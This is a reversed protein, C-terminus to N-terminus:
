FPSSSDDGSSKSGGICCLAGEIFVSGNDAVLWGHETEGANCKPAPGTGYAVRGGIAACDKETCGGEHLVSAGASHAECRNNYTKHDCGCVPMSERTCGNPIADCKGAADAIQGACGQGGTAAEYNCFQGADCKLAAIGGCTEGSAGGGSCEGQSAVSVGMSHASCESSYTQNDCGCVPM